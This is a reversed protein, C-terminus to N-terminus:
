QRNGRGSNERKDMIEYDVRILYLDALLQNRFEETCLESYAALLSDKWKGDRNSVLRGDCNFENFCETIRKLAGLEDRHIRVINEMPTIHDISLIDATLANMREYHARRTRTFLEFEQGNNKEVTVNGEGDFKVKSVENFLCSTEGEGSFKIRAIDEDILNRFRNDRSVRFITNILRVPFILGIGDEGNTLYSRSQTTLRNYFTSKLDRQDLSFAFSATRSEATSSHSERPNEQLTQSAIDSEVDVDYRYELFEVYHNFALFRNSWDRSHSVDSGKCSLIFNQCLLVQANAQDVNENEFSKALKDFFGAGNCQEFAIKLQNLYSKYNSASSSAIYDKLWDEYANLLDDFSGRQHRTIGEITGVQRFSRYNRVATRLSAFGQWPKSSGMPLPLPKGNEADEKGYTLKILVDALADRNFEEDLDISLGSEVRKCRSKNDSVVNKNAYSQDKLWNEFLQEKM